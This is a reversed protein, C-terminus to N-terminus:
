KRSIPVPHSRERVQIPAGTLSRSLVNLVMEFAALVLDLAQDAPSLGEVAEESLCHVYPVNAFTTLGAFESGTTVDVAGGEGHDSSMPSQAAGAGTYANIGAVPPFVIERASVAAALGLVSWTLKTLPM